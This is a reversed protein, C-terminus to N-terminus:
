HKHQGHGAAPADKPQQVWVKVETRGGREFELTLAFTDGLKLPQKLGMLMLHLGGPELKVTQGAPLPIDAVERMRMVNGEMSMTHLEVREALATSARVLRDAEKGRNSVSKLYVAGNQQGPQTPRAWPHDIRIAGAKYEHAAAPPAIAASLPLAVALVAAGSAVARRLRCPVFSM